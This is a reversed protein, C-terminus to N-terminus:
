DYINLSMLVPARCVSCPPNYVLGITQHNDLLTQKMQIMCNKCQFLHGCPVNVQARNEFCCRCTADLSTQEKQRNTSEPIMEFRDIAMELYVDNEVLTFLCTECRNQLLCNILRNATLQDIINPHYIMERYLCNSDHLDYLMQDINERLLSFLNNSHHMFHVLPLPGATIRKANNSQLIHGIIENRQGLILLLNNADCLKVYCCECVISRSCRLSTFSSSSSPISSQPSSSNTSSTSTTTVGNTRRDINRGVITDLINNHEIIFGHEILTLIITTAGLGLRLYRHPGEDVFPCNCINMNYIRNHSNELCNLQFLSRTFYELRIRKQTMKTIFDIQSNM